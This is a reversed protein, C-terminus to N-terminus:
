KYTDNVRNKVRYLLIFFLTAFALLSNFAFSFRQSSTHIISQFFDVIFPYLLIAVYNMVMVLALAFAAKSTPALQSSREYIYPQAIGYGAGAIVAGITIIFMSRAIYVILLGSAIMMFSVATIRKNLLRLISNIFFGPLMIAIYFISIVTGAEGSDYGYASMLFPLDFSIVIVLYTVLFYYLMYLILSRYDIRGSKQVTSVTNNNVKSVSKQSRAVFPMFLMAVFPLLYVVFSLRWQVDALYGVVATVVVLAVNNIASSYGFQKVRYEGAFFYSIIYTSLPILMGAGVGLLASVVLLENMTGCFFYLVGSLGFLALGAYLLPMFGLHETLWGSLLVFPIIMLSPLSTLMEIDLESSHTFIHTLDGLIPSVALGPLSTLASISWIGILAALTIVGRGTKIRM